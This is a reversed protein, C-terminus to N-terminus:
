RRMRLIALVKQGCSGVELQERKKETKRTKRKTKKRKRATEITNAMVRLNSALPVDETPRRQLVPNTTVASDMLSLIAAEIEAQRTVIRPLTMTASQM